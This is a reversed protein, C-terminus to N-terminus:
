KLLLLHYQQSVRYMEVMCLELLQCLFIDEVNGNGVMRFFKGYLMLPPMILRGGGQKYCLAPPPIDLTTFGLMVGKVAAGPTTVRAYAPCLLRGVPRSDPERGAAPRNVFTDLADLAASAQWRCCSVSKRGVPTGEATYRKRAM